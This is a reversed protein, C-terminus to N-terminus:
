GRWSRRASHLVAALEGLGPVGDAAAKHFFFAIVVGAGARRGVGKEM